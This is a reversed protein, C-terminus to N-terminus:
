KNNSIFSRVYFWGLVASAASFMIASGTNGHVMNKAAAGVFMGVFLIDLVLSFIKKSFKKM